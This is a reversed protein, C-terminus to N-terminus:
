DWLYCHILIFSFSHALSGSALEGISHTFLGLPLALNQEDAAAREGQQATGSSEKQGHVSAEM